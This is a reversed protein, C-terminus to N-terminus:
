DIVYAAFADQRPIKRSIALDNMLGLHSLGYASKIKYEEEILIGLCCIPVNLSDAATQTAEDFVPITKELDLGLAAIADKRKSEIESAIDKQWHCFLPRSM